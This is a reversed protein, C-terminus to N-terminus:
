STPVTRAKGVTTQTERPILSSNKAIVADSSVNISRLLQSYFVIRGISLPTIPLFSQWNESYTVNQHPATFLHRGTNLLSPYYLIPLRFLVFHLLWFLVLSPVLM